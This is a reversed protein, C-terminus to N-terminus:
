GHCVKQTVQNRLYVPLAQSSAVVSGISLEYQALLAIDQAHPYQEPYVAQLQRGARQSLQQHYSAWGSGAGVWNEGAPVLASDPIVVTEEIQPMMLQQENAYFAGWYVEQMRADIAALVATAGCVRYIGQALAQLTSISVVATQAACALGQVVSAAIRVGTFSGPGCGFALADVQALTIESEALLADIMGLIKHGHQRPAIQYKENVVQDDLLAASCAETSTEVALIKM